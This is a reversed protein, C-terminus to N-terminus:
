EVPLSEIEAITLGTAEAIVSVSLGAKRLNVAVEAMGEAKGEAKGEARGRAEGIAEGEARNLRYRAEEDWRAKDWSEKQRRIIEDASMEMLRAVPKRLEPYTQELMAFEEKTGSALFKLWPWVKRGDETVPIKCLELIHFELADTLVIRGDESRLKFRTHYDTTEEFLPFDTILVSIVWNVKKYPERTKIQEGLLKAGYVAMRECMEGTDDRQIEVHIIK